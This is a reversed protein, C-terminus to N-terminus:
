NNQYEKGNYHAEREPWMATVPHTGPCEEGHSLWLRSRTSKSEARTSGHPIYRKDM